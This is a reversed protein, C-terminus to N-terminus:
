GARRSYGQQNDTCVCLCLKVQRRQKGLNQTQWDKATASNNVMSPCEVQFGKIGHSFPSMSRGGFLSLLSYIKLSLLTIFWMVRICEREMELWHIAYSFRSRLRIFVADEKKEFVGDTTMKKPFIMMEGVWRNLQHATRGPLRSECKLAWGDNLPYCKRIIMVILPGMNDTSGSWVLCGAELFIIFAPSGGDGTCSFRSAIKVVLILLVITDFHHPDLKNRGKKLHFSSWNHNSEFCRSACGHRQHASAKEKWGDCCSVSLVFLIPSFESSDDICTRVLM